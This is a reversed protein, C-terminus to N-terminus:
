VDVEGKYVYEKIFDSLIKARKKETEKIGEEKGNLIHNEKIKALISMIDFKKKRKLINLEVGWLIQGLREQAEKFSIRYANSLIGYNRFLNDVLTSASVNFIKDEEAKELELIKQVIKYLKEAFQNEKYGFTFTNKIIVFPSKEDYEGGDINLFEFENKLFESKIKSIYGSQMIAPIFLMCGIEMGTGFHKPNATLYGLNVDFCVELKELVQDDMANAVNFCDELAFGSKKSLLRIHDQECTYVIKEQNENIGYASIDKNEVLEKTIIGEEQLELCFNLPLNKLSKFELEEGFIESMSRAIGVAPENDILKNVFPVDKINRRYSVYSVIVNSYNTM